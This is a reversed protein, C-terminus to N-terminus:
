MEENDIQEKLKALKRYFFISALIFALGALSLAIQDLSTKGSFPIVSGVSLFASMFLLVMSFNKYDAMKHKLATIEKEDM